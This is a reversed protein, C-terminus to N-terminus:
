GIKCTTDCGIVVAALEEALNIEYPKIKSGNEEFVQVFPRDSYLVNQRIVVGKRGDNIEVTMGVPYIAVSHYFAKVIKEQFQKGMGSYLLELGEHPLMATRYVRNSTVADFVDAVAIIQAFLHIDKGIIGRPYGSGDLREHHQYACHAVLLPLTYTKRLLEFGNSTHAKIIAFEDDTLHGPKMLIETPVTVKGIDHLLAGLGIMELQPEALGMEMGIALAYLSVNLSHTFIYSDHICIDSLLSMLERNKKVESLMNRIIGKFEKVSKELVFARSSVPETEIKKFTAVIASLAKQKLHDSIPERFEIDVMQDDIYIFTIGMQRLRKLIRENLAVGKNVLIKGKENYIPKGLKTGVAVTATAVLRM